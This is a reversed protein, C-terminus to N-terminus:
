QEVVAFDSFIVEKIMPQGLLANTKALIQRKILGLGPDALDSLEANRIIMIVQDRFRHRRTKMLKGFKSNDEPEASDKAGHAGHGGGHGGAEAEESDEGSHAPIEDAVTAYLHFDILLTTNSAPNLASLSFQGLDVEREQVPGHESHAHEDHPTGHETESATAEGGGSPLYMYALVCQAIVIVALIIGVKLKSMLKSGGTSNQPDAAHDAM